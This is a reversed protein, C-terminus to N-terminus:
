DRGRHRGKDPISRENGRKEPTKKPGTHLNARYARYPGRGKGMKRKVTKKIGKSGRLIQCDEKKNEKRLMKGVGRM